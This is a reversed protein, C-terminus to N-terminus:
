NEKGTDPPQESDISTMCNFPSLITFIVNPYLLHVIITGITWLRLKFQSLTQKSFNSFCRWTFILQWLLMPVACLLISVPIAIANLVLNM